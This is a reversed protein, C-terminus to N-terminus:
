SFYGDINTRFMVYMVDPICRNFLISKVRTQQGQDNPPPPPSVSLSLSDYLHTVRKRERWHVLAIFGELLCRDLLFRHWFLYKLWVIIVNVDSSEFSILTSWVREKDFRESTLYIMSLNVNFSRNHEILRTSNSETDLCHSTGKCWTYKCMGFQLNQIKFSRPDLFIWYM